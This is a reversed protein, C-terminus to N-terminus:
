LSSGGTLLSDVHALSLMRDSLSPSPFSILLIALLMQALM